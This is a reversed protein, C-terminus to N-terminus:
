NWYTIKCDGKYNRQTHVCGLAFGMQPFSKPTDLLIIEKITHGCERLERLRAKGFYHVVPVLFVVNDSVECAKRLFPRFISWPPNTIIWNVKGEFDFFDIGEAIECYLTGQPLCRLFAGGGKCPELISGSPNFYEVIRSALDDPTYVIDNKHVGQKCNKM